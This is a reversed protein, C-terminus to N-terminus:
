EVIGWPHFPVLIAHDLRLQIPPKSLSENQARFSASDKKLKERPFPFPSTARPSDPSECLDKKLKERSFPLPLTARPSDPSQCLDRKLKGRPFPFPPTARPSTSPRDDFWRQTKCATHRGSKAELFISFDPLRTSALLVKKSHSENQVAHGPLLATFHCSASDHFPVVRRGTLDLVLDVGSESCEHPISPHDPALVGHETEHRSAHPMLTSRQTRKAM